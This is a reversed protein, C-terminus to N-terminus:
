KTSKAPVKNVISAELEALKAPNHVRGCSPCIPASSDLLNTGCFPCAAKTEDYVTNLWERELGLEMAATRQVDSIMRHRRLQQWDDDALRVLAEFWKMQRKLAAEIREKHAKNTFLGTVSLAENPFALVAPHQDAKSLLQSTTHMHALSTVIEDSRVLVRDQIGDLDPKYYYSDEVHLIFPDSNSVAPMLHYIGYVMGPIEETIERKSFSVVSSTM